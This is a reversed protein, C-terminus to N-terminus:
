VAQRTQEYQRSRPHLDSTAVNVGHSAALAVFSRHEDVPVLGRARWNNVVRRDQLGLARALEAQGGLKEALQDLTSRVANKDQKTWRPM